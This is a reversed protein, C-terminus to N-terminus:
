EEAMDLQKLYEIRNAVKTKTRQVQQGIAAINIGINNIYDVTGATKDSIWCDPIELAHRSIFQGTGQVSVGVKDLENFVSWLINIQGEMSM